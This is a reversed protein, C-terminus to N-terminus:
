EYYEAQSLQLLSSINTSADQTRQSLPSLRVTDEKYTEINEPGLTFSHFIYFHRMIPFLMQNVKEPTGHVEQFAIITSNMGEQKLIDYVLNAKVKRLGPEHHFLARM